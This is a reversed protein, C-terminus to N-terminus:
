WRGLRHWGVLDHDRPPDPEASESVVDGSAPADDPQDTDRESSAELALQVLADFAYAEPRERRGETRAARFVEDTIPTLAAIIQAGDEVNGVANLHWAGDIDTWQRLRRKHHIERRRAELDPHAAAKTRAVEERLEALSVSKAEAVLRDAAARDVEAAEAILSVQGASLEGSTAAGALEEHDALLQATDLADRAQRTSMGAQHALDEAANRFGRQRWGGTEAVRAAAAGKLYAAISEIAAADAVVARADSTLLCAPDFQRAWESLAERLEYLQRCM